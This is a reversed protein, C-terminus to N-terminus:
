PERVVEARDGNVLQHQGRIVLQEADALGATVEAADLGLLGLTVPRREVLGSDPQFIFVASDDGQGVIAEYPVNIADPETKAAIWATVYQGDHLWDANGEIALRVLVSRRDRTIAPSVATVQGSAVLPAAAHAGAPRRVANILPRAAFSVLAQQGPSVTTALKPPLHILVEFRADDIIVIAANADLQGDSEMGIPPSVFDGPRINIRAIRGDFPAFVATKDLMSKQADLHATMSAIDSQAAQLRASTAQEEARTESLRTRSSEFSAQSITGQSVLRRARELDTELQGRSAQLGRLSAALAQARDRAGQLDAEAQAVAAAEGTDDTRALLQGYRHDRSPGHVTDGEQLRRGDSGTALFSVTGSSEFFLRQRRAAQAIGKSMVWETVTGSSVPATAIRTAPRSAGQAAAPPANEPEDSFILALSVALTLIVVAWGWRRKRSPQAPKCATTENTPLDPM